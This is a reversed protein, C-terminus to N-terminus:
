GAHAHAAGRFEERLMPLTATRDGTAARVVEDLPWSIWEGQRSFYFGIRRLAFADNWDLLAYGILQRLRLPLEGAPRVTTKVDYLCEDLILDGDAGGVFRSGDFSAGCVVKEAHPMPAVRLIAAVEEAVSAEVSAAYTKWDPAITGACARAAERLGDSWEGGSRYGADVWAIAVSARAALEPDDKPLCALLRATVDAWNRDVTEGIGSGWARLLEIGHRLVTSDALDRELQMRLGYDVATGVLRVSEMSGAPVHMELERLIPRETAAFGVVGPLQDKFFRNVWSGNRKIHQLLSM